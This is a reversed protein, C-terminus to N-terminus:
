RWGVQKEVGDLKVPIFQRQNYHAIAGACGEKLLGDNNVLVRVANFVENFEGPPANSLFDSAVKVKDADTVDGMRGSCQM